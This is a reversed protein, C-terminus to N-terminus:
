TRAARGGSRGCLFCSGCRCRSAPALCACPPRSRGVQLSPTIGQQCQIRSLEDFFFAVAESHLLSEYRIRKRRANCVSMLPRRTRPLPASRVYTYTARNSNIRGLASTKCVHMYAFVNRITNRIYEIQLLFFARSLQLYFGLQRSKVSGKGTLLTLEFLKPLLVNIM